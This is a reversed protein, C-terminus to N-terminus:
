IHPIYTSWNVDKFVAPPFSRLGMVLLVVLMLRTLIYFPSLVMLVISTRLVTRQFQGQKSKPGARVAVMLSELLLNLFALSPIAVMIAASLRWMFRETSTPFVSNWATCHVAGFVSGLVVMIGSGGVQHSGLALPLSWFSPVSTSPLGDYNHRDFGFTAQIVWTLDVHSTTKTNPLM